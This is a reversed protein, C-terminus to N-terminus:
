HYNRKHNGNTNDSTNTELVHAGGKPTRGLLKAKNSM